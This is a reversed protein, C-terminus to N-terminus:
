QISANTFKCLFRISAHPYFIDCLKLLHLYCLFECVVNHNEITNFRGSFPLWQIVDKWKKWTLLQLETSSTVNSEFGFFVRVLPSYSLRPSSRELSQPPGKETRASVLQETQLTVQLHTASLGLFRLAELRRLWSLCCAFKLFKFLLSKFFIEERLINM